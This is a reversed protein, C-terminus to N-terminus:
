LLVVNLLFSVLMSFLGTARMDDMGVIGGTRSTTTTPRGFRSTTTTDESVSRSTTLSATTTPYTFTTNADAESSFRSVILTSSYGAAKIAGPITSEIEVIDEETGHSVQALSIELDDLDFVVYARRLFNNGFTFYNSSYSSKAFLTLYCTNRSYATTMEKLPVEIIFGNFNFRMTGADDGPCDVLYVDYTSLWTGGLAEGINDLVSQSVYSYTAGTDLLVGYNSDMVTVNDGGVSLEIGSIAMTLRIQDGYGYTNVMPFTVLDGQYKSRDVGGFLVSGEKGEVTNLYISYANKKIIGDSKMKAPLNLYEYGDSVTGELGTLGIGFVGVDSTSYEGIAFSLDTVSVGGFSVTDRGWTGWAVTGDAYAIEFDEASSNRKWTDSTGTNYSGFLKCTNSTVWSRSSYTARKDNLPKLPAQTPTPQTEVPFAMQSLPKSHILRDKKAAAGYERIGEGPNFVQDRKTFTYCSRCICVVDSSIVWMDSSGTDILLITSQNNSGINLDVMYFIGEHEIPMEATTRRSLLAKEAGKPPKGVQFGVKVPEAVATSALLLATLTPLFNIM